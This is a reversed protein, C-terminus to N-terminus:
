SMKFQWDTKRRASLKYNLRFLTPHCSYRRKIWSFIGEQSLKVYYLNHSLTNYTM